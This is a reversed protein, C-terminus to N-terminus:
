HFTKSITFFFSCVHPLAIFVILLATRLLHLRVHSCVFSVNLPNDFDLSKGHIFIRYFFSQLLLAIGGLMSVVIIGIHDGAFCMTDSLLYSMWRGKATDHDCRVGLM